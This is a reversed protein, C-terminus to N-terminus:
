ANLKGCAIVWKSQLSDYQCLYEVVDNAAITITDLPVITTGGSDEFAITLVCSFSVTLVIWHTKTADTVAPLTYTPATSPTHVYCGDALTYISTAAPITTVSSSQDLQSPPVKGDAGLSAVGNAAGKASTEIKGALASTLGTVDSISIDGGGGGGSSDKKRLKGLIADFIVGM